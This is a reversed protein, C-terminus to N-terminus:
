YLLCSNASSFWFITCTGEYTGGLSRHKMLDVKGEGDAEFLSVSEFKKGEEVLISHLTVPQKQELGTVTVQLKDDVLLRGQGRPTVTVKPVMNKHTHIFERRLTGFTKLVSVNLVCREIISVNQACIRSINNCSSIM